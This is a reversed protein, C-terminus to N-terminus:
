SDATVLRAGFPAGRHHGNGWSISILKIKHKTLYNSLRQHTILPISKGNKLNPGSLTIFLNGDEGKVTHSQLKKGDLTELPRIVKEYDAINEIRIQMVSIFELQERKISFPSGKLAHEVESLSIEGREPRLQVLNTNGDKIMKVDGSKWNTLINGFKKEFLKTCQDSNEATVGELPLHLIAPGGALVCGIVSLQLALVLLGLKLNKTPKIKM